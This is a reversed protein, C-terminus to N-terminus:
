LWVYIAGVGYGPLPDGHELRYTRMNYKQLDCLKSHLKNVDGFYSDFSIFNLEPLGGMLIHITEAIKANHCNFEIIKLHPLQKIILSAIETTDPHELDTDVLVKQLGNSMLMKCLSTDNLLDIINVKKKSNYESIRYSDYYLKLTRLNIMKSVLSRLQSLDFPNKVTLFTIHNWSILIPLYSVFENNIQSRMDFLRIENICALRNNVSSMSYPWRSQRSKRSCNAM